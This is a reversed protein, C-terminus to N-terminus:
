KFTVASPAHEFSEAVARAPCEYQCLFLRAQEVMAEDSGLV